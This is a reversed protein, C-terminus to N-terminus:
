LHKRGKIFGYFWAIRKFLYHFPLLFVIKRRLLKYAVVVKSLEIAIAIPPFMKYYDIFAANKHFLYYGGHGHWFYEKWLSRWTKRRVEYFTARTVFLRWGRARIRHEIDMDEGVGKINEDFGGVQQIARVRYICGSTALAKSNSKGEHRFNVLFEINELNAVLSTEERDAYKGKGVGVDPNKEMFELQKSVFNKSLIMDGDVWVIYDGIANDVVVQRAHGLGINEYLIKYQLDTESLMENIISLTRDESHGDVIILETQEHPFDQNTISEMSEKITIESNKVCVGVTVIIKSNM